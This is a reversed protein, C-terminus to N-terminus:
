LNKILLRFDLLIRLLNLGRIGYKMDISKFYYKITLLFQKLTHDTYIFLRKHHLFEYFYDDKKNFDILKKLRENTSDMSRIYEDKKNNVSVGIHAYYTSGIYKFYYIEESYLVTQIDVLEDCFHGIDRPAPKYKKLLSMSSFSTRNSVLGRLKLSVPDLKQNLFMNNRSGKRYLGNPYKIDYDCFISIDKNKYDIEKEKILNFTKEFIGNKITDDGAMELILEGRSEKWTREINGYIGLNPENRFPRILTPYKNYYDMIVNWNNDTSFDDCVVIEYVWEKQILISELARGILKDQNYTIISVTFKPINKM